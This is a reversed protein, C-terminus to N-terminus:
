GQEPYWLHPPNRLKRTKESAHSPSILTVDSHLLQYDKSKLATISIM